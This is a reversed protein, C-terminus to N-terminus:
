YMQDLIEERTLNPAIREGEIHEFTVGIPDELGNPHRTSLWKCSECLFDSGVRRLSHRFLIDPEKRLEGDEGVEEPFSNRFEEFKYFTSLFCALNNLVALAAVQPFNQFNQIYLEFHFMNLRGLVSPDSLRSLDYGQLILYPVTVASEAIQDFFNQDLNCDYDLTLIWIEAKRLFNVLLPQDVMRCVKVENVKLYGEEFHDLPMRCNILKNFVLYFENQPWSKLLQKHQVYRGWNSFNFMRSSLRDDCIIKLNKSGFSRQQEDLAPFHFSDQLSHIFLMKLNPLSKLFEDSFLRVQKAGWEFDLHFVLCELNPFETEFQFNEGRNTMEIFRLSQPFLFNFDATTTHKQRPAIVNCIRLAQLCPTNLIVPVDDDDFQSLGWFSLVKLNPLDIEADKLAPMNCVIELHELCKFRNLQKQLRLAPVKSYNHNEYCEFVVLKKINVFLASANSDLFQHLYDYSRPLRLFSSRSMPENTYFLRHNLPIFKQFYLAITELRMKAEFAARWNRCVHSCKVRENLSPMLEFLKRLAVLPLNEM